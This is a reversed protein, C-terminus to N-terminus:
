PDGTPAKALIYVITGLAMTVSAVLVVGLTKDVTGSRNWEAFSIELTASLRESFSLRMRRWYAAAGVLATTIAIASFVPGFRLGWPSYNLLIGLLFVITISLGVSIATRGVWDLDRDSPFITATALYGPVFLIIPLALLSGGGISLMGGIVLFSYFLCAYIDWPIGQFHIRM